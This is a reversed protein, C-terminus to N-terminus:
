NDRSKGSVYLSYSIFLFLILYGISNAFFMFQLILNPYKLIYNQLINSPWLILFSLFIGLAAITNSDGIFISLSKNKLYRTLFLLSLILLVPGEMIILPDISLVNKNTLSYQHFVNAITTLITTSIIIYKELKTEKIKWFFIVFLIYEIIIYSNVITISHNVVIFKNSYKLKIIESIAIQCFSFIPIFLLIRNESLKNKFKLGVKIAIISVVINLLQTLTMLINIRSM